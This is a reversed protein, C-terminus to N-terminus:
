QVTVVWHVTRTHTQTYTHVTPRVRHLGEHPIQRRTRAAPETQSLPPSCGLHWEKGEPARTPPIRLANLVHQPVSTLLPSYQEMSLPVVNGLFLANCHRWKSQM